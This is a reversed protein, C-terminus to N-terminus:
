DRRATSTIHADSGVFNALYKLNLSNSRRLAVKTTKIRKERHQLLVTVIGSYLVPTSYYPPFWTIRARLTINHIKASVTPTKACVVRLPAPAEKGYGM